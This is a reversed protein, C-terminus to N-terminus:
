AQLTSHVKTGGRFRRTPFGSFPVGPCIAAMSERTVALPTVPDGWGLGLASPIFSLSIKKKREKELHRWEPCRQRCLPGFTEAQLWATMINHNVNWEHKHRAYSIDRDDRKM